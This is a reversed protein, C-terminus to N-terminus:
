HWFFDEWVAEANEIMFGNVPGIGLQSLTTFVSNIHLMVDVDFATYSDDLGLIKKTSTLISDSM